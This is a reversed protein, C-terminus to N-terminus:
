CNTIPNDYCFLYCTWGSYIQIWAVEYWWDETTKVAILHNNLTENRIADKINAEAQAIRALIKKTPDPKHEFHDIINLGGSIGSLIQSGTVLYPIIAVIVPIAM